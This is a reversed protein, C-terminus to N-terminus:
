KPYCPSKNLKQKNHYDRNNIPQKVKLKGNPKSIPFSSKVLKHTSLSTTERAPMYKHVVIEQKSQQHIQRSEYFNGRSSGKCYTLYFEEIEGENLKRYVLGKEIKRFDFVDGKKSL